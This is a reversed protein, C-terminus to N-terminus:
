KDFVIEGFSQANLERTDPRASWISVEQRDPAAIHTRGVNGMWIAGAAPQEVGMTKFPIRVMALWRKKDPELLSQYEWEGNWSPDDLGWRPDMPDAIFGIAADYKSGTAPGVKFRYFKERNGFPAVCIDLSEQKKMDGDRAVAAFDKMGAPLESEVRLYLNDKDSLVRLSTKCTLSPQSGPMAELINTEALDWAPSDIAVQGAAPKVVARKVGPLPANRMTKTDWNFATDKFAGQYLNYEMKLHGPSHLPFLTEPWGPIPKACINTMSRLSWGPSPKTRPQEVYYSNILANRADIADLLQDRSVRDPKVQYAHYLHVVAATSKVYDFERRVLALRWRARDSDATKEALALNKELSSLLDPTYIFGILQFPDTVFKRRRGNIDAYTWAPCRTGLYDSYLEVGHYLADYFGRMPASARGFAASCFENVIDNARNTEPDDIMRGLTYYVPGELGFLLGPGDRQIGQVHNTFLRKVQTEVFLPTRTPFYVGGQNPCWNYIYSTFGKPVEIKNWDEFDKDNTGCLMIMTNAPFKKFTKPVKETHMYAMIMVTKDPHLKLVREALNRHLIWLKESWDDGTDFLKKCDDCQCCQFGDPQGLGVIEYGKDLWKCLDRYFLEQLEPNSICYQGANIRKGNVLAFYEPHKDYYEEVPAAREYTHGGTSIDVLPFMNLAIDWISERPYGKNYLVFPVKRVDLDSPAVITDSKIFEMCPSNTFDLRALESPAEWHWIEPYLFRAGAYERLFDATGKVTGICPWLQDWSIQERPGEPKVVPPKDRGAIVLNSGVAKIFYGWGKLESLKIGNQRSFETDGLYIGPKGPDKGSEAAVPIDAGNVKFAAQVLRAAQKLWEGTEPDASSDPVVVQYDSKGRDSLVLDASCVSLSMCFLVALFFKSYEIKM